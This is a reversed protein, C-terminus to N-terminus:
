SDTDRSPGLLQTNRPPKPEPPQAAAPAAREAPPAEARSGSVGWLVGAFFVPMSNWWGNILLDVARMGVIAMLAALLIADRRGWRRVRRWAVLVPLVLM